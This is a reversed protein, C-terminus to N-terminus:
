MHVWREGTQVRALPGSPRTHLLTTLAFDAALGDFSQRHTLMTHGGGDVTVYTVNAHARLRTALAASREPSAIRDDSGHVILIQEASLGAPVDTPYVWPALAVVSRVQRHGASLLAARGGLSHGVLCTPLHARLREAGEDMAWSVDEVPTHADNWGRSSNLLRYVALRGKGLRAIQAAIPIMRLVSLQTPSVAVGARRSAGGHLVVVMATPQDPVAVEVLKAAPTM